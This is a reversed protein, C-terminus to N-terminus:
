RGYKLGGLNAISCLHRPKVVRASFHKSYMVTNYLSVLLGLFMACSGLGQIGQVYLRFAM